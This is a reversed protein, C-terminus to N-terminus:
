VVRQCYYDKKDVIIFVDESDRKMFFKERAYKELSEPNTNLEHSTTINKKIEEQYYEKEQRLKNLKKTLRYQSIINNKDFFILLGLFILTALIYKNKLITLIKKLVNKM